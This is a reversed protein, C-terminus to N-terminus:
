CFLLATREFGCVEAVYLSPLQLVRGENTPIALPPHNKLKQPVLSYVPGCGFHRDSVFPISKYTFKDIMQYLRDKAGAAHVQIIPSSMYSQGVHEIAAKM